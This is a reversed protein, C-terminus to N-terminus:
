SVNKLSTTEGVQSKNIVSFDGNTELVVAEVEALSATGSSRVAQLVEEKTVRERIMAGSLFEGQYFLLRPSAKVLRKIVQFRVSLWTVLLQMGMLVVFALLGELLAVDESLIITALASGLAVTVIFDFANMKSLTRKGTLRQFLVLGVYALVGVVLIRLLGLSNDFFFM